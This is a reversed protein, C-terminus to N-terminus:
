FGQINFEKSYQPFAEPSLDCTGRLYAVLGSDRTGSILSAVLKIVLGSIKLCKRVASSFELQHITLTSQKIQMPNCLQTERNESKKEAKWLSERWEKGM